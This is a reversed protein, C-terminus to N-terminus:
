RKSQKYLIFGPLTQLFILMGSFLLFTYLGPLIFMIVAGGWWGISLFSIWKKGYLVGSVLYAIGLVNSILPTIYAGSYADTYSGIFWIVTMTIGCSFWLAGLIKGAFTSVKSRKGRKIETVLTYIWGIGIVVPWVLWGYTHENFYISFYTLLMGIVVLIGWIIFGKGDDKIIRRSDNIINKIYAIEEQPNTTSM